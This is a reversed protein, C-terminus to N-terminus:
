EIRPAAFQTWTKKLDEAAEKILPDRFNDITSMSRSDDFILVIDPWGEREFTFRLQPLLILLALLALGARLAALPTLCTFWPRGGTAPAGAPREHLYVWCIFGVAAACLGFVLWRDRIPDGTLYANAELRLRTGEGPAAAPVGLSHELLGKASPG